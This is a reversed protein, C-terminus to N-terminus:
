VISNGTLDVPSYETVKRTKSALPLAPFVLTNIRFYAAATPLQCILETRPMTLTEFEFRGVAVALQLRLLDLNTFFAKASVVKLNNQPNKTKQRFGRQM